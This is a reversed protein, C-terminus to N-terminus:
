MSGAAQLTAKRIKASIWSDLELLVDRDTASAAAQALSLLVQYSVHRLPVARGAVSALLTAWEASAIKRAMPFTGDVYVVVFAASLALHQGMAFAAVLNRMWQYSGGSFPCPEYDRVPDVNMVEAVFDWYRIGKGSLACRSTVGNVPNTQSVYSANCQRLHRHAGRTIVDPQSCSGGDPETFKCEFLVIGSECQGFMDIQTSKPERLLHREVLKEPELKWSGRAPLGLKTMWANVILDRSSLRQVTGFFEVALAQSSNVAAATVRGSQDRHWPFQPQERVIARAFPFLNAAIADIEARQDM